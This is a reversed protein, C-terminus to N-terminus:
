FQHLRHSLKNLDLGVHNSCLRLCDKGGKIWKLPSPLKTPSSLKSRHSSCKSSLAATTTWPSGASSCHQPPLGSFATEDQLQPSCLKILYALLILSNPILSCAAALFAKGLRIPLSCSLNIFPLNKWLKNGLHCLFNPAGFVSSANSSKNLLAQVSHDAIYDTQLQCSHHSYLLNTRILCFGLTLFLSPLDLSFTGM